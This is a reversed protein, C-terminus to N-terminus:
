GKQTRNSTWEKWEEFMQAIISLDGEHKYYRCNPPTETVMIANYPRDFLLRNYAIRNDACWEKTAM